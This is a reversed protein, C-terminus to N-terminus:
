RALNEQTKAYAELLSPKDPAFPLKDLGFYPNEFEAMEEPTNDVYFEVEHGDPDFVYVSKTVGHNVTCSFEIGERELTEYAEVLDEVTRLRFAFHILGLQDARAKGADPGIEGLALEHHDRGGASLFAVGPIRGMVQLGLVRTYFDLSKELNRVSVVLHGVREIKIM